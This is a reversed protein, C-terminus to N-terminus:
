RTGGGEGFRALAIQKIGNLDLKGSGLMPLKAVETFSDPSPIFLNPLGAEQLAKCLDAPAKDLATHVVILREGKKADPVAAIAAKLGEEESAGIIKALTEEIQIHPVMEGGIKSFRSLRGTIQVFGDEDILALDGTKYWGDVIVEATKEPQKLYGKMVNPGKVWLMGSQGVRLEQGTDPDNVRATVGPVCRGVTGEKSDIQFNGISRSKPINVSVLPSLETTGYGEVPRIGFKEEFAAALESPLKEAGAVVVDLTAFDEKDTRRLYTRLFTPTALLLTGGFEKCLKGVQKGDLPSFHYAGKIALTAVGWMTVTYGLSHFFPLIGLLVDKSTLQIVQDIAEVNSAVNANTLMVGKPQGTSGSTFIITLVDDAKLRHLGLWRELVFSPLAFTQLAAVVKDAATPKTKFDELYIIEADLKFNMKDMFKKSTIVHKIGAQQICYNLVDSSVTYNLNVTVRKDLALAVNTILGAVSPPVLVGVCEEGPKLAHRRLLRRLILTRLLLNGGSMSGSTSDAVKIARKSRKCRCIFSRAPVTMQQTRRQVAAAGLDQLARRAQHEDEIHEVRPGFHISVPYRWRRPWKWFYKGGAFSFISGWLEDLYVPIVPANTGELIKMLGPKFGQMHGVRSIGGEPFIVVLEGNNLAERAKKLGAVISKPGGTILIVGWYEALRILWGIKFNGAWAIQRITRTSILLFIFGDLWSIHNSVLLAGGQEPLNERGFIRIRYFFYSGVWVAFRTCQQPIIWLIYFFIPLTFVGTLAFIERSTFLPLKGSQDFVAKVLQKDDPFREYYEDKQILVPGEQRQIREQIDLHLLRALTESREAPGAREVYEELKPPTESSWARTFELELEDVQAAAPASLPLGRLDASVNDLTGAYTPTRMGLYLFSALLMGSFIMFNAASLISGRAHPDSRHQMYSELPVSFLGASTGLAFLLACAWLFGGTWAPNDGEIITGPVTFLLLASAAVGFAGLPLIGLEVRGGSWVGALVSGFGVGFILSILLPNKASETLGGGEFALQDINLQALMGVAWFFVMGVAIRLLARHSALLRLDQYTQLPANWPFKRAPNGATLRKIMLSALVGLVAVGLVVGIIPLPNKTGRYGAVVRLGGGLATGICTAALTALGFLGNAASIHQPKLMEPISGMKAPAFLASHCGLMAVVTFLFSVNELYIALVGLGMILVEALKCVVIVNRKSFRDALYGAPAALILYPLVFCASGGALVRSVDEQSVYDKAIGIVLWRFVNDNVATLFQTILLGAFSLSLLPGQQRTDAPTALDSTPHAM